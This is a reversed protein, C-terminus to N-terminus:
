GSHRGSNGSARGVSDSARRAWAGAGCLSEAACCSCASLKLGPAHTGQQYGLEVFSRIENMTMFRHVRDASNCAHCSRRLRCVGPFHRSEGMWGQGAAGAAPGLSVAHLVARIDTPLCSMLSATTSTSGKPNPARQRESLGAVMRRSDIAAPSGLQKMLAIDQKYRHYYDVSVDGTDGGAM